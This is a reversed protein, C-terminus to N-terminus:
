GNGAEIGEPDDQDQQDAELEDQGQDDAPEPDEAEAEPDLDENQDGSDEPMIQAPQDGSSQIFAQDPESTVSSAAVYVGVIIAIVLIVVIIMPMSSVITDLSGNSEQYFPKKGSKNQKKKTQQAFYRHNAEEFDQATQDGDFGLEEAYLKVFTKGYSEGPLIDLNDEEIAKIYRAKIKTKEQIDEITYGKSMRADKLRDGISYM